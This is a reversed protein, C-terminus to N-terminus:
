NRFNRSYYFENMILIVSPIVRVYVHKYLFHVQVSIGEEKGGEFGM